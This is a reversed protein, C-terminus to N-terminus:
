KRIKTLVHSQLLNPYKLVFQNKRLKFDSLSMFLILGPNVFDYYTTMVHCLLNYYTTMVHCSLNNYSTMVHCLLNYHIRKNKQM